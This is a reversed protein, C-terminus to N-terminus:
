WRVAIKLARQAADRLARSAGPLAVLQRIAEAELRNAPHLTFLELADLALIEYDPLADQSLGPGVAITSCALDRERQSLIYGRALWQFTQDGLVEQYDAQSPWPTATSRVGMASAGPSLGGSR